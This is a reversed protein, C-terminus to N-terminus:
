FILKDFVKTDILNNMVRTMCISKDFVFTNSLFLLILHIQNFYLIM